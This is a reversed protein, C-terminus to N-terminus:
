VLLLVPLAAQIWLMMKFSKVVLALSSLGPLGSPNHEVKQALEDLVSVVLLLQSRRQGKGERELFLYGAHVHFSSPVEFCEGLRGM